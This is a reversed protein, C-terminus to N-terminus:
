VTLWHLWGLELILIIQGPVKLDLPLPLDIDLHVLSYRACLSHHHSHMPSFTHVHIYIKYILIYM